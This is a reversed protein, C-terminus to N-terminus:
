AAGDVVVRQLQGRVADLRPRQRDRGLGPGGRAAEGEREVPRPAVAEVADGAVDDGRRQQQAEVALADRGAGEVRPRAGAVAVEGAPADGRADLQPAALV